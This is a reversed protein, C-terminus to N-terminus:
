RAGGGWHNVTAAQAECGYELNFRCQQLNNNPQNTPLNFPQNYQSHLPCALLVELLPRMDPVPSSPYTPPTVDDMQVDDRWRDCGLRARYM